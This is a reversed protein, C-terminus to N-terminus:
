GVRLQLDLTEDAYAELAVAAAYDAGIMVTRVLYVSEDLSVAAQTGAPGGVPLSFTKVLRFGDGRAKTVAEKRTWLDFFAASRDAGNLSALAARETDTFALDIMQAMSDLPRRTEVDVGVPRDAIAILVLDGSHSLNFHPPNELGALVPKGFAGTAFVLRDPAIGTHQGLVARLTARAAIFRQRADAFRLRAAREHEDASLNSGNIPATLKRRYLLIEAM